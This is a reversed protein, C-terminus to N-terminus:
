LFEVGTEPDMSKIRALSEIRYGQKRLSEGGPQYAKEIVIGCGVLQCGAQETISILAKLAEGNALFDDLILVKDDENLYQKSVSIVFDANRTYSHLPATYVDPGMNAAQGKKAFIVPAFDFFQSTAFSVAIGSAEITLIKTVECDEFREKFAKGIQQMFATDVQHNLFSDVKLIDGSLIRGESNIREKLLDM